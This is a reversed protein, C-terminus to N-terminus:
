IKIDPWPGWKSFGQEIGRRDLDLEADAIERGNRREWKDNWWQILPNRNIDWASVHPITENVESSKDM